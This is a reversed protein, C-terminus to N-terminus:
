RWGLAAAWFRALGHADACDIVVCQIRIPPESPM